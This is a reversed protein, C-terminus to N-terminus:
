RNFNDIQHIVVRFSAWIDEVLNEIFRWEGGALGSGFKPCHIEVPNESNFNKLIFRKVELMSKTLYAYNLPRPNNRAKIGNQAIM